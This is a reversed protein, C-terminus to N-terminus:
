HAFLSVAAAILMAVSLGGVGAPGRGVRAALLIYSAWM